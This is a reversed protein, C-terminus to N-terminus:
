EKKNYKKIFSPTYRGGTLALWGLDRMANNIEEDGFDAKRCIDLAYAWLMHKSIHEPKKWIKKEELAAFFKNIVEQPVKLLILGALADGAGYEAALVTITAIIRADNEDFKKKLLEFLPKIKPVYIELISSHYKESM